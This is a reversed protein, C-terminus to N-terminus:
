HFNQWFLNSKSETGSGVASTKGEKLGRWKEEEERGNNAFRWSCLLAGHRLRVAVVGRLEKGWTLWHMKMQIERRSWEKTRNWNLKANFKDTKLKLASQDTCQISSKPLLSPRCPALQFGLLSQHIHWCPAQLHWQITYVRFGLGRQNIFLRFQKNIVETASRVQLIKEKRFHQYNIETTLWGVM